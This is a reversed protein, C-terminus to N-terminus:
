KGVDAFKGESFELDLFGRIEYTLLVQLEPPRAKLVASEMRFRSSPVTSTRLLYSHVEVVTLTVGHRM